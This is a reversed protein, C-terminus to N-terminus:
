LELNISEISAKHPKRTNAQRIYSSFPTLEVTVQIGLTPFNYM